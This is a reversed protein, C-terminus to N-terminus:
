YFFKFINLYFSNHSAIIINLYSSKLFLEMTMEYVTKDKFSYLMKNYNLGSRTGKGACLVIVSYDM